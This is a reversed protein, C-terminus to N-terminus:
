LKAILPPNDGSLEWTIIKYVAIPWEGHSTSIIFPQLMAQCPILPKKREGMQQLLLLRYDYTTVHVYHMLRNISKVTLGELSCSAEKRLFMLSEVSQKCLLLKDVCIPVQMGLFLAKAPIPAVSSPRIGRVSYIPSVVFSKPNIVEEYAFSEHTGYGGGHYM